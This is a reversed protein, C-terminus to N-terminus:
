QQLLTQVNAATDAQKCQKVQEATMCQGGGEKIKAITELTYADVYYSSVKDNADSTTIKVKGKGKGKGRPAIDRRDRRNAGNGKPKNSRNWKQSSDDGWTVKRKNDGERPKREWHQKCYFGEQRVEEDCLKAACKFTERTGQGKSKGKGKGVLRAAM